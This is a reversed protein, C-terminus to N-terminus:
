LVRIVFIAVSDMLAAVTLSESRKM